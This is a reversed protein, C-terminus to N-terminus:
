SISFISVSLNCFQTDFSKSLHAIPFCIHATISLLHPKIIGFFLKTVSLSLSINYKPLIDSSNILYLRMDDKIKLGFEYKDNIFIFYLIFESSIIKNCSIIFWSYKSSNFSIPTFLYERPFVNSVAFGNIDSM